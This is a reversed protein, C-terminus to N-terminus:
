HTVFVRAVCESIRGLVIALCERLLATGFGSVVDPEVPASILSFGSVPTHFGLIRPM